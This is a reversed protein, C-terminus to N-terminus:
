RSEHGLADGLAAISELEYTATATRIDSRHTESVISEGDILVALGRESDVTIGPTLPGIVSRIKEV